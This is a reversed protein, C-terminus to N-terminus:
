FRNHYEIDQKHKELALLQKDTLMYGGDNLAESLSDVMNEKFKWINETSKVILFDGLPEYKEDTPFIDIKVGGIFYQYGAVNMRGDTDYDELNRDFFSKYIRDFKIKFDSKFINKNVALDFDGIPRNIEGKLLLALSGSIILDYPSDQIVQKLVDFQTQTMFGKAILKEFPNTKTQNFNAPLSGLIETHNVTPFGENYYELNPTKYGGSQSTIKNYVDLLAQLDGLNANPFENKFKYLEQLLIKNM